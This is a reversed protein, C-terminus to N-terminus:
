RLRNRYEKEGNEMGVLSAFSQLLLGGTQSCKEVM